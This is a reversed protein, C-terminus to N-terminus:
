EDQFVGHDRTVIEAIEAFSGPKMHAQIEDPEVMRGRGLLGAEDLIQSENAQALSIALALGLLFSQPTRAPNMSICAWLGREAADNSDSSVYFAVNVQADPSITVDGCASTAIQPDNMVRFRDHLITQCPAVLDTMAVERICKVEFEVAM